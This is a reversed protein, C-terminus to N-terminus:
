AAKDDFLYEGAWTLEKGPLIDKTKCTSNVIGKHALGMLGVMFNQLARGELFQDFLAPREGQDEGEAHQKDIKAKQQQYGEVFVYQRGTNSVHCRKGNWHAQTNDQKGPHKRADIYEPGVVLVVVRHFFEFAFNKLRVGVGM